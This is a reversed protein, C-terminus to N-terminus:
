RSIERGSLTFCSLISGDRGGGVKQDKGTKRRQEKSNGTRPGIAVAPLEISFGSYDYIIMQSQSSTTLARSNREKTSKKQSKKQPPFPHFSVADLKLWSLLLVSPRVGGPLPWGAQLLMM